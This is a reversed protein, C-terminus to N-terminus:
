FKKKIILSDYDRSALTITFNSYAFNKATEFGIDSNGGIVLLNKM